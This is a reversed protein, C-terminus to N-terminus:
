HDAHSAAAVELKTVQSTKLEVCWQQVISVCSGLIIQYARSTRPVNRDHDPPLYVELCSMFSFISTLVLQPPRQHLNPLGYNHKRPSRPKFDADPSLELKIKFSLEINTM